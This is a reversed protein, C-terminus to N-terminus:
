GWCRRPSWPGKVAPRWPSPPEGARARAAQRVLHDREAVNTALRAAEAYAAAAAPLDGGLEHLHGRVAHWRHRDGLVAACGIPRACGPLPASSTASRSRAGSCRPPTRACRTTPRPRRPRRVLRPDAALRDGRRKGRRRAPGLDRGRDPLPRSAPPGDGVAPRARGRRDRAHGVPRPGPPRAYRDPGRRRIAGALTRPQPADARAARAGGARRHRPHAPARAPDGRRGPGGPGRARRHLHPLARADRRRPRRAPGASARAPHAQRPQNAAGDDARPRLLRRRDGAHHPRRRRAPDAGGPVRARARPSLLLLAPVPHRRGGRHRRSAAGRLDVGRPPAKRVRRPPCRGAAPDRGHHAMCAPRAAPARALGPAGGAAGGPPRGRRRRLGRGPPGPGRASAPRPCAARGRGAM